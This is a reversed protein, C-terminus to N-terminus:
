KIKLQIKDGDVIQLSKRINLSSIFEIHNEHSTKAPVIIAGDITKGQFKISALWIHVKGFKRGNEFFEHLIETPKIKFLVERVNIMEDIIKLNLTGPFPKWGLAEQIQNIYGPLSLFYKGRDLGTEVIGIIQM